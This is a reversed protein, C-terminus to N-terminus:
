NFIRRRRAAKFLNIKKIFQIPRGFSALFVMWMEQEKGLKDMKTKSGLLVKAMDMVCVKIKVEWGEKYNTNLIRM